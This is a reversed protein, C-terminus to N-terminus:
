FISMFIYAIFIISFLSLFAASIKNNKAWEFIDKPLTKISKESLESPKIGNYAKYTISGLDSLTKSFEPTLVFSAYNEEGTDKHVSEIVLIPPDKKLKRPSFVEGTDEDLLGEVYWKVTNTEQLIIAEDISKDIVEDLFLDENDKENNNM